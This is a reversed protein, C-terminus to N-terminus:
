FYEQPRVLWHGMSNDPRPVWLCVRVLVRGQARLEARRPSLHVAIHKAGQVDQSCVGFM